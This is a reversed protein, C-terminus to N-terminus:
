KESRALREHKPRWLHVCVWCQSLLWGTWIWAQPQTWFAWSFSSQGQAPCQWFLEKSLLASMFCPDARRQECVENLAGVALPVALLVPLAFGIRQM